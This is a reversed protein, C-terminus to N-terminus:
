FSNLLLSGRCQWWSWHCHKHHGHLRSALLARHFCSTWSTKPNSAFGSSHIGSFWQNSYWFHKRVLKATKSLNWCESWWVKIHDGAVFRQLRVCFKLPSFTLHSLIEFISSLCCFSGLMLKRESAWCEPNDPKTWQTRKSRVTEYETNCITLNCLRVDESWFPTSGPSSRSCQLGKSVLPTFSHGIAGM